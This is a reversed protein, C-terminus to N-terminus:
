FTVSAPARCLDIAQLFAQQLRTAAAVDGDFELSFTGSRSQGQTGCDVMIGKSTTTCTTTTAICKDKRACPLELRNKQLEVTSADIAALSFGVTENRVSPDGTNSTVRVSLEARCDEIKNLRTSWGYLGNGLVRDGHSALETQIAAALNELSPRSGAEEASQALLLATFVLPLFVLGPTQMM